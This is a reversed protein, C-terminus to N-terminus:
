LNVKNCSILTFFTSSNFYPIPPKFCYRSCTYGWSFVCKYSKRSTIYVYQSRKNQTRHRSSLKEYIRLFVNVQLLKYLILKGYEFIRLGVKKNNLNIPAVPPSHPFIEEAKKQFYFFYGPKLFFISMIMSMWM